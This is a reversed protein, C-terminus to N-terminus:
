RRQQHVNNREAIRKLLAQIEQETMPEIYKELKLSAARLSARYGNDDDSFM